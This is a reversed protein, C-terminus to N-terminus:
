IIQTPIRHSKAYREALSGKKCEIVFKACGEFADRAIQTSPSTITIKKLATCNKFAFDSISEIQPPVVFEALSHCYSFVGYELRKVGSPINVKKLSVCNYFAHPAISAVNEPITISELNKCSYFAQSKIATLSKPLEISKLVFCSCFMNESIETLEEGLTISELASCWFFIRKGVHTVSAPLIINKLSHCHSFSDDGISKLNANLEIEELSHCGSFAENSIVAVNEPITVNKIFECGRFANKGIEIIPKGEISDPIFVNESKIKYGSVIISDSFNRLKFTKRWDSITYEKLGIAKEFKVQEIEEIRSAPYLKNKYAILISSAETHAENRATEIMEDLKELSIRPSYELLKYLLDIRNKQIIAKLSFIKEKIVYATIKTKKDYNDLAILPLTDEEFRDKWWTVWKEHFSEPAKIRTLKSCGTFAYRGISIIGDPIEIRSFSCKKFAFDYIFKTSPHIQCEEAKKRKGKILVM